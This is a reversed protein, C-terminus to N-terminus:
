CRLASAQMGTGPGRRRRGPPHGHAARRRAELLVCEVVSPSGDTSMSDIEGPQAAFLRILAGGRHRGAEAQPRRAARVAAPAPPVGAGAAPAPSTPGVRAGPGGPWPAPRPAPRGPASGPGPATAVPGAAPPSRWRPRRGGGSGATGSPSSTTPWGWGATPEGGHGRSAGAPRLPGALDADFYISRWGADAVSLFFQLDGCCLTPGAGPRARELGRAPLHRISLLPVVGGSSSTSCLRRPARPAAPRALSAAEDGDGRDLFTAAAPWARGAPDADLVPSWRRCSPRSGGTTTTSCPWTGGGPGTSCRWTTAPSVWVSPIAATTPDPPRRAAAVSPEAAGTEDGISCSSTRSTRRWCAACRGAGRRPAGTGHAHVGLGHGTGPETSRGAGM